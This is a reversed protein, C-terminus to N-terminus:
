ERCSNWGILGGGRGDCEVGEKAKGARRKITAVGPSIGNMKLGDAHAATEGMTSSAVRAHGHGNASPSEKLGYKDREAQRDKEKKQKEEEEERIVTEYHLVTDWAKLGAGPRPSFLPNYLPGSASSPYRRPSSSSPGAKRKVAAASSTSSYSTGYAGTTTTSSERTRKSSASSATGKGRKSGARNSFPTRGGRGGESSGEDVSGGDEIRQRTKKKKGTGAGGEKAFPNTPDPYDDGCCDCGTYFEDDFSQGYRFPGSRDIEGYSRSGCEDALSDHGAGGFALNVHEGFSRLNFEQATQFLVVFVRSLGLALIARLGNQVLTLDAPSPPLIPPTTKNAPTGASAPVAASATSTSPPSTSKAQNAAGKVATPSTPTAPKAQTSLATAAKKAALRSKDFATTTVKFLNPGWVASGPSTESEASCSNDPHHSCVSPRHLASPLTTSTVSPPSLLPPPTFFKSKKLQSAPSPPAPPPNLNLFTAAIARVPQVEYNARPANELGACMAELLPIINLLDTARLGSTSVNIGNSIAMRRIATYTWESSVHWIRDELERLDVQIQLRFFERVEESAANLCAWAPGGGSAALPYPPHVGLPSPTLFACLLSSSHSSSPPM